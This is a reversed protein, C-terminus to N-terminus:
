ENFYESLDAHIMKGLPFFKTDRHCENAVRRILEIPQGVINRESSNVMVKTQTEHACPLKAVGANTGLLWRGGCTLLSINEPHLDILGLYPNDNNTEFILLDAYAGVKIEGLTDSLKYAKAANTTVFSFVTNAAAKESMIAALEKLAVKMEHILSESGSCTSDTGLAVNVEKKLIAQIPATKNFLFRNSVPCWVVSAHANSIKEVDLESLNVGHILVSGEFLGGMQDLENLEKATREDIGEAIHIVFPIGKRKATMAESRAGAGVDHARPDTHIFIERAFNFLIRLPYQLFFEESLRRSQNAVTSVGSLINKYAGLWYLDELDVNAFKTRALHLIPRWDYSNLYPPEGIHEPWTYRLHDHANILAPSCVASPFQLDERSPALDKVISVIREDRIEIRVGKEVERGPNVLQGIYLSIM